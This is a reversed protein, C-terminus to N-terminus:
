VDDSRVSVRERHPVDSSEPLVADPEQLQNAPLEEDHGSGIGTETKFERLSKGFSSGIEPIRGVGFIIVVIVLLIILEPVGIPGM